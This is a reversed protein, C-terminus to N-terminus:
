NARVRARKLTNDLGDTADETRGCTDAVLREKGSDVEQLKRGYRSQLKSAADQEINPVGDLGDLYARHAGWERRQQCYIERSSDDRM